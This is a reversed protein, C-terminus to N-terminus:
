FLPASRREPILLLLAVLDFVYLIALLAIATGFGYTLCVSRM